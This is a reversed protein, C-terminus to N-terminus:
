NLAAAFCAGGGPIAGGPRGYYALDRALRRFLFQFNIHRHSTM